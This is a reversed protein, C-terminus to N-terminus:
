NSNCLLSQIFQLLYAQWATM